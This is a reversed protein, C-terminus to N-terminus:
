GSRQKTLVFSMERRGPKPTALGQARRSFGLKGPEPPCHSWEITLENGLVAEAEGRTFCQPHLTGPKRRSDPDFVDCVIVLYGRPKLVRKMERVALAPDEFHDLANSCFVFDFVDNPFPIQHASGTVYKDGPKFRAGGKQLETACLDLVCKRSTALLRSVSTLGGGVDLVSLSPNALDLGTVRRIEDLRRDHWTAAVLEDVEAVSLGRFNQLFFQAARWQKSPQTARGILKRCRGALAKGIRSPRVLLRLTKGFSEVRVATSGPV